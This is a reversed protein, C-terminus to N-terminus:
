ECRTRPMTDAVIGHSPRDNDLWLRHWFMSTKRYPEVHDDCGSIIQHTGKNRKSCPITREAADMFSKTIHTCFNNIDSYHDTCLFNACQICKFGNISRLNNEVEMRYVIFDSYTARHWPVNASSNLARDKLKQHPLRLQLLLPEHDCLNAGSHAVQVNVALNYVRESVLFHDISSTGGTSYNCYTYDIHASTHTSVNILQENVCAAKLLTTHASNRSFDTNFDGGIVDHPDVSEILRSIDNLVDSFVDARTEDCIGTDYPMYVNIFVVKSMESIFLIAVLRKSNTDICSVYNNINKTWLIAVGGYPRGSQIQFSSDM